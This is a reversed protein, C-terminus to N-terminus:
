VMPCKRKGFEKIVTNTIGHYLIGSKPEKISWYPYVVRFGYYLYSNNKIWKGSKFYEEYEYKIAIIQNLYRFINFESFNSNLTVIHYPYRMWWSKLDYSMYIKENTQWFTDVQNPNRHMKINKM